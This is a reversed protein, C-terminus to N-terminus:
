KNELHKIKEKLEKIEKNQEILYLTLEEIKQLLKANMEGLNIGNKAVEAKDPIEPLHGKESIHAEVDELPKLHYDDEFVFDPWGSVEVKIERAGISGEVALKHTGMASTGIGVQGNGTIRMRESFVDGSHNRTYFLMDVVNGWVDASQAYIGVSKQTSSHMNGSNDLSMTLGIMRNDNEQPPHVSRIILSNATHASTYIGPDYVELKGNPSATGIGVNDNTSLNSGNDTWQANVTLFVTFLFLSLICKKM